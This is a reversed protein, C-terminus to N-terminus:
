TIGPRCISLYSTCEFLYIQTTHHLKLKVVIQVSLELCFTLHHYKLRFKQTPAWNQPFLAWTMKTSFQKSSSNGNHITSNINMLKLDVESIVKFPTNFVKISYSVGLYTFTVLFMSIIFRICFHHCIVYFKCFLGLLYWFSM